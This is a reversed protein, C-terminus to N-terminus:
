LCLVKNEQRPIKFGELQEMYIEEDLKGYLYTSKVDLGSIYWDKLAALGLMLQVTEFYLVLSFIQNFNSGEVQSFGKM